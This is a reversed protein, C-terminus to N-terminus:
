DDRRHPFRENPVKRHCVKCSNITGAYGQQLIAQANDAPTVAPAIAHPSGHCASCHVGMHGHSDKYLKGPEEFQYDPKNKQHCTQCRPEDIWPRRNTNGVDKMDGHCDKCFIGKSFHIDRQCNTQFGPHCSYCTNGLSAVPAMREAHSAHMAHSMTKVGPKGATGLAADAHCSACLVPKAQELKTNHLRDHKRLIDTEVSIGPTTHCLNCNIEWSVPVVAVTSGSVKGNAIVDIKSLQYPNLQNSDTIPTIPIGTAGWDNDNLTPKMYGSLGNGTLGINPQLNVGFLKKAYQWFNTKNSSITNGPISYRVSVGSKVIKPEEGGRYIVQARLTNYPPLICIESFNQNMCHMGLDNYGLVVYPSPATVARLYALKAAQNQQQNSKAPAQGNPKIQQPAADLNIHTVSISVVVLFYTLLLLFPQHLRKSPIVPSKISHTSM